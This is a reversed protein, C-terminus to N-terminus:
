GLVPVGTDGKLWEDALKTLTGDDSLAKLAGNVCSVLPSDKTLLLGLKDGGLKENVAFQGPIAGNELSGYAIGFSTPLDVILGDIQKAVLAAKADENTDYVSAAADPKIVDNITGLSTTGAAAGLKAGKLEAITKVTAFPSDGLTVIAQAGVYYPDSFSVVKAREPTISFQQLNFDFNKAGPQIAEDFSTRVWKVGAGSFGMKEGVALAVAAEFGQGAEPKDDIVWPAYAPGGTAITLVGKDLTKGDACAKPDSAAGAAAGSDEAKDSGCAAFLLSSAIAATMLRRM